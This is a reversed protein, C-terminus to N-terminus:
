RIRQFLRRWPGPRRQNPSHLARKRAFSAAALSLGDRDIRELAAIEVPDLGTGVLAHAGDALFRERFVVDTYLRAMVVELAAASM